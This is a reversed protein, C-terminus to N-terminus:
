WYNKKYLQKTSFEKRKEISCTKCYYEKKGWSLDRKVAYKNKILVVGCGACKVEVTESM